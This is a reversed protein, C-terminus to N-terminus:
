WTAIVDQELQEQRAAIWPSYHRSAVAPTNGLLAAVREIPVGKLLLEVAFTDRFRHAHGGTVGATKFVSTLMSQFNAVRTKPLGEKSWFYCDGAIPLVALADLTVPPLPVRVPVGTKASYLFLKGDVIADRRLTVADRIRLGSYRLLLVFAKLIPRNPGKYSDCATLIKKMDDRTFPETPPTTVIPSKLGRGPDSKVWGAQHAYRFLARLNETKNRAAYNKNKLTGRFKRLVEVDFQNLFPLHERESFDKLKGFLLRYKYLSADRLGRSAADALFSECAHKLTVRNVQGGEEIDRCIAQGRSWSRTKLSRCIYKGEVTGECWVPCNCRRYRRSKQPCNPSHRRYVSLM